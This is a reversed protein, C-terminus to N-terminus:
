GEDSQRKALFFAIVTSYILGFIMAGIFLAVFAQAAVRSVPAGAIGPESAMWKTGVVALVGVFFLAATLAYVFSIWVGTKLADKFKPRENAERELAKLGLYIMIFHLVNFFIPAGLTHVLSRPNAVLTHALLVWAMVGLTILLGYKLPIKM